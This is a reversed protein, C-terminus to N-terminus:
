DLRTLLPILRSVPEKKPPPPPIYIKSGRLLEDLHYPAQLGEENATQYRNKLHRSIDILQGHSIPKGVGPDKLSAEATSKPEIVNELGLKICEQVAAVSAATMTLLVM